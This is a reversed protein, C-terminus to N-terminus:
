KGRMREHERLVMQAIDEASLDEKPKVGALRLGRATIGLSDLMTDRAQVLERISRADAEGRIRATIKVIDSALMEVFERPVVNNTSGIVEALRAADKGNKRSERFRKQRERTAM